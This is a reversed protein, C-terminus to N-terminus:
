SRGARHFLSSPLPSESTPSPPLPLAAPVIITAAPTRDLNQLAQDLQAVRVPDGSHPREEALMRDAAEATRIYGASYAAVVAATGLAMLNRKRRKAQRSAARSHPHGDSESHKKM